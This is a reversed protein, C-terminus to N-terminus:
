IQKQFLIGGHIMLEFRTSRDQGQFHFIEQYNHMHLKRAELRLYSNASPKFEFGGTEGQVKYGTLNGRKDVITGTMIGHRDNFFEYRGYMSFRPHWEYKATLVGSFMTASKGQRLLNSNQQICFDVGAQFTWEIVRYNWFANQHFRLHPRQDM